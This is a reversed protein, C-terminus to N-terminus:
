KEIRSLRSVETNPFIRCLNRLGNRPNVAFIKFIRGRYNQLLTNRLSRQPYSQKMVFYKAVNESFTWRLINRLLKRPYAKFFIGRLDGLIVKSNMAFYKEIESLLKVPWRLVNRLSDETWRQVENCFIERHDRLIYSQPERLINWLFKSQPKDCHIRNLDGLIVESNMAFYKVIELSLKEFNTIWQLINWLSKELAMKGSEQLRNRWSRRLPENCHM